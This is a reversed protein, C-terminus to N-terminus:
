FSVNSTTIWYFDNFTSGSIRTRRQKIIGIIGILSVVNM